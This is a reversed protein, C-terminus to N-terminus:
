FVPLWSKSRRKTAVVFCIAIVLPWASFWTFRRSECAKTVPTALYAADFLVRVKMDFLKPFRQILATAMETLKRYGAGAQTKPVWLDIAWPLTVGRFQVAALVVIHGHIFAHTKQDWIKSVADMTRGRKKIRTDDILLYIAEGKGPKMQRIIREAQTGLVGAADWESLLFRAHSTRHGENPIARSLHSLKMSRGNILLAVILFRFHQFGIRSFFRRQTRFTSQLFRPFREIQM